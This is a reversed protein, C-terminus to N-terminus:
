QPRHPKCHKELGKWSMDPRSGVLWGGLTRVDATKGAVWLSQSWVSLQATDRLGVGM